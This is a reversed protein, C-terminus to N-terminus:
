NFLCFWKPFGSIIQVLLYHLRNQFNLSTTWGTKTDPLFPPSQHTWPPLVPKKRFIGVLWLGCGLCFLLGSLTQSRSSICTDRGGDDACRWRQWGTQQGCRTAAPRARAADSSSSQLLALAPPPDGVASHGVRLSVLRGRTVPPSGAGVAEAAAAHGGRAPARASRV